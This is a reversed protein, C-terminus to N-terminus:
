ARPTKGRLVRLVRLLLQNKITKKLTYGYCVRLLHGKVRLM